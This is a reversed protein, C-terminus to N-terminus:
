LANRQPPMARQGEGITWQRLLWPSKPLHNGIYGGTAPSWSCVTLKFIGSFSDDYTLTDPFHQLLALLVCVWYM